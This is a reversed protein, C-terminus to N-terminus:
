SRTDKAREVAAAVKDLLPRLAAAGAVHREYLALMEPSLGNPRAFRHELNARGMLRICEREHELAAWYPELEKDPLFHELEVLCSAWRSREAEDPASAIAARLATEIVPKPYPLESESHLTPLWGAARDSVFIAFRDSVARVDVTVRPGRTASGGPTGDVRM